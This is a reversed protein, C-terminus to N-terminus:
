TTAENGALYDVASIAQDHAYELDYFGCCSDVVKGETDKVLYAYVEGSLYQGYTEVEAILVEKVKDAIEKTIHKVSYEARIDAKSVYIFGVWMSDWPCNWPYRGFNVPNATVGIGSHDYMRIPLVISGGTDKQIQSELENWSNFEDQRYNHKDGLSYRHHFCVMTGLNDFERPDSPSEDQEIEITYGKHEVAEM